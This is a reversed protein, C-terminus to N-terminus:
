LHEQKNRDMLPRFLYKVPLYVLSFAAILCVAFALCGLLLNGIWNAMSVSTYGDDNRVYYLAQEIKGGLATGGLAKNSQDWLIALLFGVPYSFILIINLRKTYHRM